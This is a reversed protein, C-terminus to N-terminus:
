DQLKDAAKHADTDQEVPVSVSIVGPIAKTTLAFAPSPSSPGMDREHKRGMEFSEKATKIRLEDSQGNVLRKVQALVQDRAESAARLDDQVKKLASQANRIARNDKWAVVQLAFTGLTVIGAVGAPILIALGNYNVDMLLLAVLLAM